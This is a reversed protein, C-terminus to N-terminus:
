ADESSGFLIQIRVREGNMNYVQSGAEDGEVVVNEGEEVLLPTEGMLLGMLLGM